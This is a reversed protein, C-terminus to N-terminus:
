SPGSRGLQLLSVMAMTVPFVATLADIRDLVGGHGPLLGGSDKVGRVRKLLSEYLDGIVSVLTILVVFLFLFIGGVQDRILSFITPALGDPQASGVQGMAAALLLNAALAGLVGEWTKGPSISPALKNRGFARGSFYAATDAVWVLLLVSLLFLKGIGDAQLLALWTAFCLLFAAAQGVASRGGVTRGRSLAIPAAVVWMLTALIYLPLLASGQGTAALAVSPFVLLSLGGALGMAAAITAARQPRLGLLGLWEYLAVAMIALLLLDFGLAPAWLAAGILVILAVVATLVRTRLM